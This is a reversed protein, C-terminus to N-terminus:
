RATVSTPDVQGLFVGGNAFWREYRPGGLVAFDIAREGAAVQALVEPYNSRLETL